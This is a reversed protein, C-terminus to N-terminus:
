VPVKSVGRLVRNITGVPVGVKRGIDDHSLKTDQYYAIITADRQTMWTKALSHEDDAQVESAVEDVFTRKKLTYEDWWPIGDLDNFTFACEAAWYRDLQWKNPVGRRVEVLGRRGKHTETNLWFQAMGERLKKNLMDRHPLVLYVIQKKIGIVEFKKVMNRQVKEMWNQSFLDFGAEDLVVQPYIGNKPDAYPNDNLVKNFDVVRFTMHSVSFNADITRALQACVTTKGTRREGTAMVISDFENRVRETLNDALVHRYRDDYIPVVLPKGSAYGMKYEAQILGVEFPKGRDSRVTVTEM